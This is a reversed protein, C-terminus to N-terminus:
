CIQCFILSTFIEFRNKFLSSIIILQICKSYHFGTYTKIVIFINKLFGSNLYWIGIM